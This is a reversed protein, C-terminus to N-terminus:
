ATQEVSGTTEKFSLRRLAVEEFGQWDKKGFLILLIPPFQGKAMPFKLYPSGM